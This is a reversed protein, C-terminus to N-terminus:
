LFTLHKLQLATQLMLIASKPWSVCTEFYLTLENEAWEQTLGHPFNVIENLDNFRTLLLLLSAFLTTFTM